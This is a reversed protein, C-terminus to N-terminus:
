GNANGGKINKVLYEDVQSKLIRIIGGSLRLHGIRNHQILQYMKSKGIKLIAAVERPTFMDLSANNNVQKEM